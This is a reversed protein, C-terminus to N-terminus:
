MDSIKVTGTFMAPIGAILIGHPLSSLPKGTPKCSMPRAKPSFASNPAASVKSFSFAHHRAIVFNGYTKFYVAFQFGRGLNEARTRVHEAAFRIRMAARDAGAKGASHRREVAFRDFVGDFGPQREPAFDRLEALPVSLIVKVGVKGLRPLGALVVQRQAAAAPYTEYGVVAFFLEDSKVTNVEFLVRAFKDVLAAHGADIVITASHRKDLDDGFRIHVRGLVGHREKGRQFVNDFVGSHAVHLHM